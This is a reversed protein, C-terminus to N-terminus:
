LMSNQVGNEGAAPKKEGTRANVGVSVGRVPSRSIWYNGAAIKAEEYVLDSPNEEGTFLSRMARQMTGIYDPNGFFIRALTNRERSSPNDTRDPAKKKPDNNNNANNPEVGSMTGAGNLSNTDAAANGESKTATGGAGTSSMPTNNRNTPSEAWERERQKEEEALDKMWDGTASMLGDMEREFWNGTPDTANVPNNACYSYRNCTQSDGMDQVVRDASLFRGSAPDYVRANMHILEFDELHEHDTFGRTMAGGTSQVRNDETKLRKGWPDYAFRNEVRGYEDTVLTVSGLADQHLYRLEVTQDSRLVRVASRGFPTMIYYKHEVLGGPHTVKEYAPTAYITKIEDAATQEVQMVRQRGADLAFATQQAGQTIQRLKNAATWEYTRAGDSLTNGNADHAHARAGLPGGSIAAIAHPHAASYAYSM